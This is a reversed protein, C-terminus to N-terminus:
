LISLFLYVAIIKHKVVIVVIVQVCLFHGINVINGCRILVVILALM